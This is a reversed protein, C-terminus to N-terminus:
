SQRLYCHCEDVFKLKCGYKLQLVFIINHYSLLSYEPLMVNSHVLCVDIYTRISYYIPPPPPILVHDTNLISRYCYSLLFLFPNTSRTNYYYDLSIYCVITTQDLICLYRCIYHIHKYPSCLMIIIIIKQKKHYTNKYFYLVTVLPGQFKNYLKWLALVKFQNHLANLTTLSLQIICQVIFYCSCLPSSFSRVVQILPPSKM